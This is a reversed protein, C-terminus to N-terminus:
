KAERKEENVPYNISYSSNICKDQLWYNKGEEFEFNSIHRWCKSKCALSTCYTTDFNAKQKM